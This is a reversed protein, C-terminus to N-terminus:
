NFATASVFWVPTESTRFFRRIASMSRLVGDDRRSRRPPGTPKQEPNEPYDVVSWGEPVQDVDAPEPPPAPMAPVPEDPTRVRAAIWAVAGAAAALLMGTRLKM